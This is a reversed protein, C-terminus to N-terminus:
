DGLLQDLQVLERVDLLKNSINNVITCLFAVHKHQNRSVSSVESASVSNEIWFGM